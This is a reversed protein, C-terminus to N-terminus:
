LVGFRYCCSFVHKPKGRAFIETSDLPICPVLQIGYAKKNVHYCIKVYVFPFDTYLQMYRHTYPDTLMAAPSLKAVPKGFGHKADTVNDSHVKYYGECAARIPQQRRYDYKLDSIPVLGAIRPNTNFYNANIAIHQRSIGQGKFNWVLDNALSFPERNKSTSTYRMFLQNQQDTEIEVTHGSALDGNTAPPPTHYTVACVQPSCHVTSIWKVLRFRKKADATPLQYRKKGITVSKDSYPFSIPGSAGGLVSAAVFYSEIKQQYNYLVPLTNGVHDPLRISLIAARYPTCIVEMGNANTIQYVPCGSADGHHAITHTVFHM